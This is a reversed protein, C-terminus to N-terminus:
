PRFLDAHDIEGDIFCGIGHLTTGTQGHHYHVVRCEGGDCNMSGGYGDAWECTLTRNEIENDSLWGKNYMSILDEETAITFQSAKAYGIIKGDEMLPIKKDFDSNMKIEDSGEKSCSV